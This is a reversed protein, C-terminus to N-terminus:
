GDEGEEEGNELEIDSEMLIKFEDMTIIKNINDLEAFDTITEFQLTSEGDGDFKVDKVRFMGLDFPKEGNLKVKIKVDNNLLQLVKISNQIEGYMATLTVIVTGNKKVNHQKYSVFEKISIKM